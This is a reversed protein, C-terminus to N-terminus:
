GNTDSAAEIGALIEAEQTDRALLASQRKCEAAFNPKRTDTVWIPIRRLSSTRMPDRKIAGACPLDNPVRYTSM